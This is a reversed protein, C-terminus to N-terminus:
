IRLIAASGARTTFTDARTQRYADPFRLAM